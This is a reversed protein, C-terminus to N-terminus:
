HRMKYNEVRRLSIPVSKLSIMDVLLLIKTFLSKIFFASLFDGALIQLIM